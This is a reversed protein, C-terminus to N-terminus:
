WVKVELWSPVLAPEHFVSRYTGSIDRQSLPDYQDVGRAAGVPNTNFTVKIDFESIPGINPINQFMKPTIYLINSGDPLAVSSQGSRASGWASTTMATWAAGNSSTNSIWVDNKYGGIDKGGMLVIGADPVLVGASSQGSRASWGILDDPKMQVWTAGNDTSRWVDNKYGSSGQGGMLVIRGDPMVVSSQGSRASWGILDDPKMQLWTAGNDTSRWVDNKYGGSDQGGMLVISGDPMVVSSHGSRASWGAGATMQIWSAGNDTSRWVDNKYTTGNKGGMLVICGDPMAVSSHSARTSWEAGATRQIWTAGNNTSRWVDDKFTGDYGGMLVISGDPMAVSSHSARTSWGAGATMQTWSAGNDTSRYVDNKYGGSDQGGMLVISSKTLTIWSLPDTPTPVEKRTGDVIMYAQADAIDPTPLVVDCSPYCIRIESIKPDDKMPPISIFNVSTTEIQPYVQYAPDRIYFDRFQYNIVRDVGGVDELTDPNRHDSLDSDISSPRKTLGVRDIYGYYGNDPATEGFSSSAGGEQKLAISTRYPYDGFILKSRYFDDSAFSSFFTTEKNELWVNTPTDYYYKPLGLGMRLINTNQYAKPILEWAFADPAVQSVGIKSVAAGPDETLIVGTRYAVADYDLTQTQLGVFLGSVLTVVMIFSLMFITFGVLFDISLLGAERNVSLNRREKM